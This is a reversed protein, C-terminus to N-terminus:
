GIDNLCCKNQEAHYLKANKRRQKTPSPSFVSKAESLMFSQRTKYKKRGM